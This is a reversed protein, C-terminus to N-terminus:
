IACFRITCGVNATNVCVYLLFHHKNGTQMCRPQVNLTISAGYHSKSEFRKCWKDLVTFASPQGHEVRLGLPGALGLQAGAKYHGEARSYSCVQSVKLPTM